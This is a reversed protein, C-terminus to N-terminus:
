DGLTKASGTAWVGAGVVATMLAVTEGLSLERLISFVLVGQAMMYVGVMRVIWWRM